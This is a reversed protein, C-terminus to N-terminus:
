ISKPCDVRCQNSPGLLGLEGLSRSGKKSTISAQLKSPGEQLEVVQHSNWAKGEAWGRMWDARLVAALTWCFDKILDCGVHEYLSAEIVCGSKGKHKVGPLVAVEFGHPMTAQHCLQRVAGSSDLAMKQRTWHSFDELFLMLTLPPPDEDFM